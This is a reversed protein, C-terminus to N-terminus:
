IGADRGNRLEEDHVAVEVDVENGTPDDGPSYCNQQVSVRLVDYAVCGPKHRWWRSGCSATATQGVPSRATVLVISVIVVPLATALRKWATVIM